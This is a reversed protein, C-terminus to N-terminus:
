TGYTTLIDAFALSGYPSDSDTTEPQTNTVSTSTPDPKAPDGADGCEFLVGVRQGQTVAVSYAAAGPYIVEPEGWRLAPEHPAQRTADRKTESAHPAMEPPSTPNSPSSSQTELPYGAPIIARRYVLNRRASWDQKGASKGVSPDLNASSTSDPSAGSKPSAGRSCTTDPATALLTPFLNTLILTDGVRVLGGNCGPDPVDAWPLDFSEGGDRSIAWRRTPYDRSSLLVDGGPLEVVKSEDGGPIGSIDSATTNFTSTTDSTIGPSVTANSTSELDAFSTSGSSDPSHRGRALRWHAGFDDSIAVGAITDRSDRGRWVVPQLLRGTHSGERLQIGNGSAFFMSGTHQNWLQATIDTVEWNLGDRSRAQLLRWNDGPTSDDWFNQDKSAVFLALMEGDDTAILSVDGFGWGDTTAQLIHLSSWIQGFDDSVRLGISIEGPLDRFDPRIDFAAVLRHPHPATAPFKALAPIRFCPKEPLSASDLDDALPPYVGAKVLYQVRETYSRVNLCKALINPQTFDWTM